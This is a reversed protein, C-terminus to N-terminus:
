FACMYVKGTGTSVRMRYLAEQPIMFDTYIVTVNVVPIPYLTLEPSGDEKEGRSRRNKGSEM